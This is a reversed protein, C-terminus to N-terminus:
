PLLYSKIDVLIDLNATCGKFPTADFKKSKIDPRKQMGVAAHMHGVDM